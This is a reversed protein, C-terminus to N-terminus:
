PIRVTGDVNVIGEVRRGSRHNSVLVREGAAGSALAKGQMRVEFADGGAILVVSQGREVLIPAALDGFRLESGAPLSRRTEKGVIASSERVLMGPDRYIDRTVWDLDQESILAGRPLPRRLVPLTIRASVEARVYINWPKGGECRVGVSVAGIPQGGRVIDSSLPRSCAPLRLRQDLPRVSTQVERYGATVAAQRAAAKATDAIDQLPHLPKGGTAAQAGALGLCGILCATFRWNGTM